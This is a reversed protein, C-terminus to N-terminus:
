KKYGNKKKKQMRLAVAALFRQHHRVLSQVVIAIVTAFDSARVASGDLIV